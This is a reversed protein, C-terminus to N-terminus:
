STPTNDEPPAAALLEAATRYRGWWPMALARGTRGSGEGIVDWVLDGVQFVLAGVDPRFGGRIGAHWRLLVSAIEAFAPV